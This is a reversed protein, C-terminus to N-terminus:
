VGTSYHHLVSKLNGNIILGVETKFFITLQLLCIFYKISMLYAADVYSETCVGFSDSFM